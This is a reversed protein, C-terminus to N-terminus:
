RKKEELNLLLIQVNQIGLHPHFVDCIKFNEQLCSSTLDEPTPGAANDSCQKNCSMCASCSFQSFDQTLCFTNTM